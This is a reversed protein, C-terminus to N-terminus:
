PPLATAHAAALSCALHLSRAVGELLSLPPPAPPSPVGGRPPHALVMGLPGCATPRQTIGAHMTIVLLGARGGALGLMAANAGGCPATPDLAAADVADDPPEAAAAALLVILTPGCGARTRMSAAARSSSLDRRLKSGGTTGLSDMLCAHTGGRMIPAGRPATADAGGFCAFLIFAILRALAGAGRAVAVDAGRNAGPQPPEAVSSQGVQCNM